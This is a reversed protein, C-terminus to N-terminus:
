RNSSESNALGASDTTPKNAAIRTESGIMSKMAFPNKLMRPATTVLVPVTPVIADNRVNAHHNMTKPKVRSGTSYM